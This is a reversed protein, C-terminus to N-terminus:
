GTQRAYSPLAWASRAGALGLLLALALAAFPIAVIGSVAGTGFRGISIRAGADNSGDCYAIYFAM